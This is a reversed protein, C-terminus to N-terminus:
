TDVASVMGVVRLSVRVSEVHVVACAPVQGAGARGQVQGASCRGQRDDRESVM